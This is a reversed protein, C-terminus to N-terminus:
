VQVAPLPSRGRIMDAAKEAIMITPANTNGGILTPMISADAVRLGELGRVRLESDVVADADRGMRCTGVPHFVTGCTSRIYDRLADDSQVNAGPRFEPGRVKDWAPAALLRRSVKLGRLMLELDDPHTLFQAEILPAADPEASTLRVEGRSKPRLLVTVLGYGHGFGTRGEPVRHAPLLIFQINPRDLALDTRHVWGRPVPQQRSNRAPVPRIAAREVRGMPARAMFDRVSHHEPQSAPRGGCSPRASQASAPCNTCSKSGTDVCSPGPGVGSRMLIMPSAITGGCIVIERRAFLQRPATGIRLAVGTARRGTFTVRDVQGNTIVTLNKRARAPKLFATATSVRRGDLHTSQRRGFGEQQAGNFDRTLPMQMSAAAECMMDVLPSYSDADRVNMLGGKGHYAPDTDGFQENNESKKFYPLV